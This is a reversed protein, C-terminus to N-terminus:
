HVFGLSAVIFAREGATMKDRMKHIDAAVQVGHGRLWFLRKELKKVSDSTKDLATRLNTEIDSQEDLEALLRKVSDATDQLRKQEGSLEEVLADNIHEHHLVEENLSDISAKLEANRRSLQPACSCTGNLNGEFQQPVLLLM